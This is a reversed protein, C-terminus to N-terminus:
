ILERTWFKDKSGTIKNYIDTAFDYNGMKGMHWGDISRPYKKLFDKTFDINIYDIKTPFDFYYNFESSVTLNYVKINISQLYLNVQNVITRNDFKETYQTHFNKFWNKSIEGGWPNILGSHTNKDSFFHYRDPYTWLIVVIDEKNFNFNYVNHQITRNSGGPESLNVLKKNFKKSLIYPWSEENPNGLGEGFTHSCGITILRNM